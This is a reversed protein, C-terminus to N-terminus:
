WWAHPPERTDVGFECAGIGLAVLALVLGLLTLADQM